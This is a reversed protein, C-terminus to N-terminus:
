SGTPMISIDLYWQPDEYNTEKGGRNLNIVYRMRGHHTEAFVRRYADNEPMIHGGLYEVFENLMDTYPKVEQEWPIAILDFDRNLSGHVVLNYGYQLAIDKLQLYCNAYFLPKVHTPKREIM